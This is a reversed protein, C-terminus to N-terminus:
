LLLETYDHIVADAKHIFKENRGKTEIGVCFIGASQAAKMGSISDEFVIANASPVDFYDLTKQFIEPDPKAHIIDNITFSTEIYRSLGTKNLIIDCFYRTSTTAVATRISEHQLFQLFQPAGDIVHVLSHFNRQLIRKKMDIFKQHLDDASPSSKQIMFLLDRFGRRSGKGSMLKQYDENTLKRGSYELTIDYFLKFNLEELDVLTGDLDFICLQASTIKQLLPTPSINM